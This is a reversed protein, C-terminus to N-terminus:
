MLMASAVSLYLAQLVFVFAAVICGYADVKTLCPKRVYDYPKLYTLQYVYM